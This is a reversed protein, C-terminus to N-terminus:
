HLGTSPIAPKPASPRRRNWLYVGAAVSAIFLITALIVTVLIAINKKRPVRRATSLKMSFIETLETFLQSGVDVGFSPYLSPTGYEELFDRLTIGSNSARNYDEIMTKAIAMPTNDTKELHHSSNGLQQALQQSHDVFKIFSERQKPIYLITAAFSFDWWADFLVEDPETNVQDCVQRVSMAKRGTRRSVDSHFEVLWERLEETSMNSSYPHKIVYEKMHLACVPCPLIDPVAELIMVFNEIEDQSEVYKFVFRNLSKWLAPGWRVLAIGIPHNKKYTM